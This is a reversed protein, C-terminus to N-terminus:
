RSSVREVEEEIAKAAAAHVYTACASGKGGLICRCCPTTDNGNVMQCASTGGRLWEMVQEYRFSLLAGEEQTM